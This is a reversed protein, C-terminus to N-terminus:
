QPIYYAIDVVTQAYSLELRGTLEVLAIEDIAVAFRYIRTDLINVTCRPIYEVVGFLPIDVGGAYHKRATRSSGM